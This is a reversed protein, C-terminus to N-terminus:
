GSAPRCPLVAHVRTGQRLAYVTCSGGIEAARESVPQPGVGASASLRHGPGQGDDEVDLELRGGDVRVSM